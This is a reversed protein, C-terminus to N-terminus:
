TPDGNERRMHKPKDEEVVEDLVEVAEDATVRPRVRLRVMRSRPEPKGLHKPDDDNRRRRM